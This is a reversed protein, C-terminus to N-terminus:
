KSPTDKTNRPGKGMCSMQQSAIPQKKWVEVLRIEYKVTRWDYPTCDALFDDEARSEGYIQIQLQNEVSMKYEFIKIESEEQDEQWYRVAVKVLFEQM